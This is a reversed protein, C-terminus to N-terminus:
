STRLPPEDDIGKLFDPELDRYVGFIVERIEGMVSGLLVGSFRAFVRAAEADQTAQVVSMLGNLDSDLYRLQDELAAARVRDLLHLSACNASRGDPMLPRVHMWWLDCLINVVIAAIQRRQAEDLSVATTRQILSLIADLMARVVVDRSEATM